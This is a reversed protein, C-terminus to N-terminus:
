KGGEMLVEFTGREPFDPNNDLMPVEFRGVTIFGAARPADGPADRRQFTVVEVSEVGEV